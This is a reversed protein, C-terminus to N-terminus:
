RIEGRLMLEALDGALDPNAARQGAALLREVEQDCCRMCEATHDHFVLGLAHPWALPVGCTRCRDGRLIATLELKAERLRALLEPSPTGRVKVAGDVLRLETGAARAERVLAVATM